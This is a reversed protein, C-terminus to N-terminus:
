PLSVFSVESDHTNKSQTFCFLRLKSHMLYGREMCCHFFRLLSLMNFIFSKQEMM